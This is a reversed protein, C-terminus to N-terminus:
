VDFVPHGGDSRHHQKTEFVIQGVSHPRPEIRRSGVNIPHVAWIAAAALSLGSRNTLDLLLRFLLAVNVAHFLLNVVHFGTPDSGFLTVDLMYSLWLAPAWYGGHVSTVAWTIGTPSLGASVQPNNLVYLDDDYHLFGFSHVPLYVLTVLVALGAMALLTQKTSFCRDPVTDMHSSFSDLGDPFVLRTENRSTDKFVWPTARLTVPM